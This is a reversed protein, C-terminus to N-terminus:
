ISDYHWNMWLETTGRSNQYSKPDSVIQCSSNIPIVEGTKKNYVFDISDPSQSEFLIWPTTKKILESRASKLNTNFAHYAILGSQLEGNNLALLHLDVGKPSIAYILKHVSAPQPHLSKDDDDKM